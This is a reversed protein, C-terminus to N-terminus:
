RIESPITESELTPYHELRHLDVQHKYTKSTDKPIDKGARHFKLLYSILARFSFKKAKRRSEAVMVPVDPLAPFFAVWQGDERQIVICTYRRYSM